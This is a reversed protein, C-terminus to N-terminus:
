GEKTGRYHKEVKYRASRKKKQLFPHPYDAKLSGGLIHSINVQHTWTDGWGERGELGSIYLLSEVEHFDGDKSAM